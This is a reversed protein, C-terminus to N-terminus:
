IRDEQAESRHKTTEGLFMEADFSSKFFEARDVKGAQRVREDRAEREYALSQLGAEIASAGGVPIFLKSNAKIHVRTNLFIFFPNEGAWVEITHIGFTQEYKEDNMLICGDEFCNCSSSARCKELSTPIFIRFSNAGGKEEGGFGLGHPLGFGNDNLWIYNKNSTITAEFVRPFPKVKSLFVNSDGYFRNSERFKANGFIAIVDAEGEKVATKILFVLPGNYGNFSRTLRNFSFGDSNSTYLRHWQGQLAKRYLALHIVDLPSSIISSPQSLAPLAFPVFTSNPIDFFATRVFFSELLKPLQPALSICFESFDALTIENLEVEDDNYPDSMSKELYKKMMGVLNVVCREIDDGNWECSGSFALSCEISVRVLISATKFAHLEKSVVITTDECKEIERWLCRLGSTSDSKTMNRMLKQFGAGDGEITGRLVAWLTTCKQYNMDHSTIQQYTRLSKQLSKINAAEKSTFVQQKKQVASPAAMARPKEVSQAEGM